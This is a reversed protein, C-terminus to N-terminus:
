RGRGYQRSVQFRQNAKVGWTVGQATNEEQASPDLYYRYAFRGTPVGDEEVEYRQKKCVAPYYTGLSPNPDDLSASMADALPQFNAAISAPAIAGGLGVVLETMGGIRKQGRRIDARVRNTTYGVAAAPSMAEGTLTGISQGAVGSPFVWEALNTDSYVDKVLVSELQFQPNVTNMFANAVSDDPYADVSSTNFLPWGLLDLLTSAQPDIGPSFIPNIYNWVNINQQNYYSSVLTVEFIYGV